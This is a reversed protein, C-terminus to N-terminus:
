DTSLFANQDHLRDFDVGIMGYNLAHSKGRGLKKGKYRFLRYSGM